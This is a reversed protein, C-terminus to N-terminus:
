LINPDNLPPLVPTLRSVWGIVQLGGVEITNQNLTGKRIDFPGFSVSNKLSILDDATWNASIKLDKIVIFSTPLMGFMLQPNLFNSTSFAAAKTGFVYWNALNLLALKLWPRDINVQCYKFSINFSDTNPSSPVVPLQNNIIDKVLLNKNFTFSKDLVFDGKMDFRSNAVVSALSKQTLLLSPSLTKKLEIKSNMTKFDREFRGDNITIPVSGAVNTNKFIKNRNVELPNKLGDKKLVPTKTFIQSEKLVISDQIKQKFVSETLPTKLKFVGANTLVRGGNKMFISTNDIPKIQSSVMRLEPWFSSSNENYWNSPTARAPRFFLNPDRKSGRRFGLFEFQADSFLKYFPNTELTNLNAGSPIAASILIEYIDDIEFGSNEFKLQNTVPVINGLYSFTEEAVQADYPENPADSMKFDAPSLSIGPWAMQLYTGQSTGVSLTRSLLEYVNGILDIANAM